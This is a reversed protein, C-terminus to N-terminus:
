METVLRAARRAALARRHEEVAQRTTVWGRESKRASITGDRFLKQTRPITLGLLAAATPTTIEDAPNPLPVSGRM